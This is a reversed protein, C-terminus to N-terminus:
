RDSGHLFTCKARPSGKPLNFHSSVQIEAQVKSDKYLIAPVIELLDILIEYFSKTDDFTMYLTVISSKVIENPKLHSSELFVLCLKLFFHANKAQNRLSRSFSCQIKTMMSTIKSINLCNKSTKGLTERRPTLACHENLLM